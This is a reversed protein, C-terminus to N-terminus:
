CAWLSRSSCHIPKIPEVLKKFSADGLWNNIGGIQSEACFTSARTCFFFSFVTFCWCSFMRFFVVFVMNGTVSLQSTQPVICSRLKGVKLVKGKGRHMKDNRSHLPPNIQQFYSPACISISVTQSSESSRIGTGRSWTRLFHPRALRDVTGREWFVKQIDANFYSTIHSVPRYMRASDASSWHRVDSYVATAINLKLGGGAIWNRESWTRESSYYLWFSTGCSSSPM